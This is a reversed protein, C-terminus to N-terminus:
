LAVEACYKAMCFVLRLGLLAFARPSDNRQASWVVEAEPVADALLAALPPPCLSLPVDEMSRGGPIPVIRTKLTPEGGDATASLAM